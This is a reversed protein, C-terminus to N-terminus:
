WLTAGAATGSGDDNAGPADKGADMPDSVRSDIHATIIVVEVAMARQRIRRLIDLRQEFQGRAGRM